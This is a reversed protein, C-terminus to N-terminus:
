FGTGLRYWQRLLAVEGVVVPTVLAEGSFGIGGEGVALKTFLM